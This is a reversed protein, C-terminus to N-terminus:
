QNDETENEEIPSSVPGNQTKERYKLDEAKTEIKQPTYTTEVKQPVYNTGKIKTNFQKKSKFFNNIKERRQERKEDKVLAEKYVDVLVAIALVLERYRLDNIGITYHKDLEPDLCDVTGIVVEDYEILYYNDTYDGSIKVRHGKVDGIITTKVESQKLAFPNIGNTGCENINTTFETDKDFANAFDIVYLEKYKKDDKVNINKLKYSNILSNRRAEYVLEDSENYFILDNNSKFLGSKDVKAKEQTMTYKELATTIHETIEGDDMFDNLLDYVQEIIRNVRAIEASEENSTVGDDLTTVNIASPNHSNESTDDDSTYINKNERQLTLDRDDKREIYIESSGITVYIHFAGKTDIIVNASDFGIELRLEGINDEYIKLLDFVDEATLHQENKIRKVGEFSEFNM